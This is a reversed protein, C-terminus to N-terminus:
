DDIVIFYDITYHDTVCVCIYIYIYVCSFPAYYEHCTKRDGGIRELGSTDSAPPLYNGADVWLVVGTDWPVAPDQVVPATLRPIRGRVMHLPSLPIM